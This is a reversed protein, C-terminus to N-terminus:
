KSKGNVKQKFGKGARFKPLKMEAVEIPQGTHPNFGTSAKRRRLLFTGFGMITVDDGKSVRNQIEEFAADIVEAVVAKPRKTTKAVMVVLKQKNMTM